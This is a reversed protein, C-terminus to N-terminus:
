GIARITYLIILTCISIYM